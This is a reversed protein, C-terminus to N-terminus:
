LDSLAANVSAPASAQEPTAAANGSQVLEVKNVNLYQGNKKLTIMVELGVLDQPDLNTLRSEPVGLSLIRAKLWKKKTNDDFSNASKWEQVDEGKFKGDAIRYTFVVAKGKATDKYNVTKVDYVFARYVGDAPDTEVQDLALDNLFGANETM